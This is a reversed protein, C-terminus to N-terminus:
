HIQILLRKIGVHTGHSAIVGVRVVGKLISKYLHPFVDVTEFPIRSQLSSQVANSGVLRESQQIIAAFHVDDIHFLTVM